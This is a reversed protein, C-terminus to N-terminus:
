LAAGGPRALQAVFREVKVGEWLDLSALYVTGEKWATIAERSGLSEKFPGARLEAGAARFRGPRDESFDASVDEFYYSQKLAVFELNGQDIAIFQPLWRLVRKAEVRQEGEPLGPAPGRQRSRDARLDVVARVNEVILARFFRGGGFLAHWPWNLSIEIRKADAATRSEEANVARLKVEELVIPRALHAQINGIELQLGSESAGRVLAFRLGRSFLPSHVLWLLLICGAVVLASRWPLRRARSTENVPSKM